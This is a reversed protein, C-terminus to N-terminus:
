PLRRYMGMVDNLASSDWANVKAKPVCLTEFIENFSQVIQENQERTVMEEREIWRGEENTLLIVLYGLDRLRGEIVAQMQSTINNRDFHKGYM